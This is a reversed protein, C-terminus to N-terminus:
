QKVGPPEPPRYGATRNEPLGTSGDFVQQWQNAIQLGNRRAKLDEIAEAGLARDLVTGTFGEADMKEFLCLVAEAVADGSGKRRQAWLRLDEKTM